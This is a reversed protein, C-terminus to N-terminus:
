IRRHDDLIWPPAGQTARYGSRRVFNGAGGDGSGGVRCDCVLHLAGHTPCQPPNEDRGEAQYLSFAGGRLGVALSIAAVIIGQGGILHTFHRWMNHSLAMHDLDVVVTLGSTTFGSVTDFAADLFSRYNDSLALPIASVVSALLWGGAAIVLAHRRALPGPNVEFLMLGLGVVFTVGMGVLYDSAPDWEAFVLATAFPILM